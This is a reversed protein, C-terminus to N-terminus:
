ECRSARQTKSLATGLVRTVYLKEFVHSCSVAKLLWRLKRALSLLGRPRQVFSRLPVQEVQWKSRQPQAASGGRGEGRSSCALWDWRTM